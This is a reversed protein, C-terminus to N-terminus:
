DPVERREGDADLRHIRLGDVGEVQDGVGVLGVAVVVELHGHVTNGGRARDLEGVVAGPGHSVGAVCVAGVHQREGDRSGLDGAHGRVERGCLLGGRDGPRHLRGFVGHFLGRLGVRFVADGVGHVGRVVFREVEILAIALRFDAVRKVALGHSLNDVDVLRVSGASYNILESETTQEM